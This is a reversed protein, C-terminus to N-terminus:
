RPLDWSIFERLFCECAEEQTAFSKEFPRKGRESYYVVWVNGERALCLKDDPQGGALSYRTESVGLEDLRNKLQQINM